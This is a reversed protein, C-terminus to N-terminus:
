TAATIASLASSGGGAGCDSATASLVGATEHVCFPGGTMGSVTLNGAMAVNGAASLSWISTGNVFYHEFDGAYAAVANIGSETGSTSWTTPGSAGQNFYALPLTSTTTGGTFVTGTITFASASAAGNGALSVMGSAGGLLSHNGTGGIAFDASNTLTKNAGAAYVLGANTFNSAATAVNATAVGSDHLLFKSSVVSADILNGTTPVSATPVIGFISDAGSNGHYNSNTSDYDVTGATTATNTAHTPVILAASGTAASLDVTGAATFTNAGNNRVLNATDSLNTSAIACTSGLTCTQGAVTTASNALAANPVAEYTVTNSGTVVPVTNTSPTAGYSVGNVKPVVTTCTGATSTADGTLAMLGECGLRGNADTPLFQAAWYNGTTGVADSWVFAASPSHGSVTGLLKIATDGNITSTTPTITAIVSGSNMIVFPFNNLMGASGAQPLTVATSTTNNTLNVVKNRDPTTQADSQITFSVVM